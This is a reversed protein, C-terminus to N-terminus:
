AAVERRLRAQHAIRRDLCQRGLMSLETEAMQLGSAHKPTHHGECREDLRRAEAPPYGHYLGALTHTSLHDLVVVIQAADAYTGEAGERRGM